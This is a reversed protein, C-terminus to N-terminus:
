AIDVSASIDIGKLRGTGSQCGWGPVAAKGIAGVRGGLLGATRRSRDLGIADGFGPRVAPAKKHGPWESVLVNASSV